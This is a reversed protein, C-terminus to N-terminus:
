IYGATPEPLAKYEPKNRVIDMIFSTLSFLNDFDKDNLPTVRDSWGVKKTVSGNSIELVFNYSHSPRAAAEGLKPTYSDPYNFFDIEVAKDYIDQLEQETMCMRATITGRNVMDKMFIDRYTNLENYRGYRGWAVSHGFKFVINIDTDECPEMSYLSLRPATILSVVIILGLLGAVYNFWRGYDLAM